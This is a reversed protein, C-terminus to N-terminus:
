TILKKICSILLLNRGSKVHEDKYDMKYENNEQNCNKPELYIENDNIDNKNVINPNIDTDKVNDNNTSIINQNNIINNNNLSNSDIEDSTHSEHLLPVRNDSSEVCNFCEFLKM